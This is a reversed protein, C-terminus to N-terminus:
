RFTNPSPAHATAGVLMADCVNRGPIEILRAKRQRFRELVGVDIGAYLHGDLLEIVHGEFLVAGGDIQELRLMM